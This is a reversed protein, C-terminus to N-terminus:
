PKLIGKAILHNRYAEPNKRLESFDTPQDAKAETAVGPAVPTGFSKILAALAEFKTEVAGLIKEEVAEFAAGAVEEAKASMAAEEPMPKGMEAEPAETTEETLLATLMGKIESISAEVTALREEVTPAPAEAMAEPKPEEKMPTESTQADDVPAEFLGDPNAAPEDVLDVSRLRTCRAYAAGNVDQPKGEFSISLGFSEPTKTALELIFDRRPSTQFLQLDALVKEDEVRFNVLRGVIEEVGSEHGVKVKIGSRAANGCKVVQSLTTEDILLGHGKAVGLTIVSVGFITDADISAPSLAQFSTTKM